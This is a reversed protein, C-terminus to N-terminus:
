RPIFQVKAPNNLLQPSPVEKWGDEEKFRPGITILCDLSAQSRSRLSVIFGIELSVKLPEEILIGKKPVMALPQVELFVSHARMVATLQGM